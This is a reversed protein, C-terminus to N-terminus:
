SLDLVEILSVKERMPLKKDRRANLFEDVYWKEAVAGIHNKYGQVDRTSWNKASKHLGELFPILSRRQSREQVWFCLSDQKFSSTNYQMAADDISEFGAETIAKLLREFRSELNNLTFISPPTAEPSHYRSNGPSSTGFSTGSSSSPSGVNNKNTINANSSTDQVQGEGLSNFNPVTASVELQSMNELNATGLSQTHSHRIHTPSTLIDPDPRTNSHLPQAAQLQPQLQLQQYRHQRQTVEYLSALGLDDQSREAQTQPPFQAQFDASDQNVRMDESPFFSDSNAGDYSPLNSLSTMIFQEFDSDNNTSAKANQLAGSESTGPM